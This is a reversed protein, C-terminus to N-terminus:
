AGLRSKVRASVAGMDARGQVKPKVIAMVRGMDKISSAGTEAVAADIVADVETDTLPEPLYHRIVEIEYREQSALDDRGGQEYQTISERRQKVMRDLTEVVQADDLEIREDVERQRIAALILRVVALRAKDGAKLASKMDDQVQQRLSM